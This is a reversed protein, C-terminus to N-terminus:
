HAHTYRHLHVLAVSLVASLFLFVVSIPFALSPFNWLSLEHWSSWTLCIAKFAFNRVAYRSLSSHLRLACLFSAAHIPPFKLDPNDCTGWITTNGPSWPDSSDSEEMGERMWECVSTCAPKLAILCRESGDSVTLQYFAFLLSLHVNEQSSVTRRYRVRRMILMIAKTVM